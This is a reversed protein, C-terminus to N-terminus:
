VRLLRGKKELESDMNVSRMSYAMLHNVKKQGVMYGTPKVLIDSTFLIVMEGKSHNMIRNRVHVWDIM